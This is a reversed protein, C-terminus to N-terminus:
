RLLTVSGTKPHKGYGKAFIEYVYTGNEAPENKYKGDWHEGPNTTSFIVEGWRNYILMKFNQIGEGKVGFTDNFGDDNPTFASPVYISTPPIVETYNSVSVINNNGNQYATIRYIKNPLVDQAQAVAAFMFLIAITFIKM